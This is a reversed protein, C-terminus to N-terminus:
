ESLKGGGRGRGTGVGMEIETDRKSDNEEVVLREMEKGEQWVQATKAPTYEPHRREIRLLSSTRPLLLPHPSDGDMMLDSRQGPRHWFRKKKAPEKAMPESGQVAGLIEWERV